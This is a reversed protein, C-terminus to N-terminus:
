CQLFSLVIAPWRSLMEVHSTLKEFWLTAM